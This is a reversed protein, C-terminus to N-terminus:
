VPLQIIFESGKGDETEVKLEGGHGKTIIDYSLSLGLGTGEGSAKTTFFPQFIKDLIDAPIGGGNDTVRIEVMDDLKKTSITVLPKYSTDAKALAEASAASVAHFANSLINLVVRSIDQGVVKIKPLNEDLDTKFDANFSNDKARLGHYALRIYEDAMANLDTPEKKGDGVRSHELMGKVISSAREGHHHIKELNQKLDSTIAKVEKTNGEAIEEDMEEILDVSVESFNNVFNLPNQIEHAIGATLEGLSAMKESHLLQTQTTKLKHYAKEIEKAQALDKERRLAHEKERLRKRQFRDALIVAVIFLVLYFLYALTTQWWPPAITISFHTATENWVGDSNASKVYFRYDGPSLNTYNATRQTGANIWDKDYGELMYVYQNLDADAYHLGVYQFSIKNENFKLDVQERGDTFLTTNKNNANTYTLSEIVISPAVNSANMKEPDFLIISNKIAIHMQGDATRDLIDTFRLEGITIHFQTINNNETNLMSLGRASATWINGRNDEVIGLVSNFLLGNQESYRKKNGTERDFLFLGSLYTGAWMRNQSDEYINTVCTLGAKRDLYSTFKETKTDFSNLGGNNTGIWLMGEKDFLLSLVRNDDLVNGVKTSGNNTIFPFRTFTSSAKNFRSLGAEDTGIWLNGEKDEIIENVYNSSISTSDNPDHTFHKVSKNMPNYCFLGNYATIWILGTKAASVKRIRGYEAENNLKIRKLSNLKYNWEFLGSNNNVFYISDGYKGNIYLDDHSSINNVENIIPEIPVPNLMSKQHDLYAVGSWPMFVWFIGSKDYFLKNIGNPSDPLSGPADSHKFVTVKATKIDLFYLSNFYGGMWLNGEKDASITRVISNGNATTNTDLDFNVFTGSQPNFLSIGKKTGFWTRDLSDNIIQNCKGAISAPDDDIHMFSKYEKTKTNLQYFTNTGTDDDPDIDHHITNVWLIDNNVPDVTIGSIMINKESEPIVFLPKFSKSPSDYYCLVSDAAIWIKGQADQVLDAYEHMPIHNNGQSDPGFKQIINHKADFALLFPKINDGGYLLIWHTSNKPDEVWNIASIYINNIDTNGLELRIFIDEKRDLFYLGQVSTLVWLMGNKDEHLHNISYRILPIGNEDPFTYSNLKHGDYRVLGNQTGFWMYGLKDQLSSVVYGEPLGNEISLTNFYPKIYQANLGTFCFLLSIYIIKRM